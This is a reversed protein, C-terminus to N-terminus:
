LSSDEYVINCSGRYRVVLSTFAEPYSQLYDPLKSFKGYSKDGRKQSKFREAETQPFKRFITEMWSVYTNGNRLFGKESDSFKRSPAKFMDSIYVIYADFLSKSQIFFKNRIKEVNVM